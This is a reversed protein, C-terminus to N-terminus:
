GSTLALYRRIFAPIKRELHTAAGADDLMVTDHDLELREAAVLPQGHAADIARRIHRLLHDFM